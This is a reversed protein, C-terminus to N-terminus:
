PMWTGGLGPGIWQQVVDTPPLPQTMDLRPVVGVLLGNTLNQLEEVNTETALDREQSMGSIIVGLVALGRREAAEITLLTHNLTGLGPRAVIVIPLHLDEAMHALTTGDTGLHVLLGGAGEVVVAHAPHDLATRNVVDALAARTIVRGDRRAAVSPALPDELIEGVVTPVQALRSVVAADDDGVRAGSQVPKVYVGGLLRCLVASVLTKGVGTDTGTVAIGRAKQNM